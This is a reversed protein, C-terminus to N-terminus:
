TRAQLNELKSLREEFDFAEVTRTFSEVTKALEGAEMPTLQGDAVAAVIASVAQKADAITAMKPMAFNVPRDKRPPLIRDLCLRIAAMDGALALEVAKRTITEAEGDLMSELAVTTKHRAGVPRGAPNGSQGPKFPRGRPQQAARKEAM